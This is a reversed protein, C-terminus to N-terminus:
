KQEKYKTSLILTTAAKREGKKVLDFIKNEMEVLKINANDTQKAAESMFVEPATSIAKKIAFDLQPEFKRYREEWRVDGTAAAMHASMTLVEDLHTIIGRLKELKLAHVNIQKVDQYTHWFQWSIGVFFMVTFALCITLLKIPFNSTSITKVEKPTRFKKVGLFSKNMETNHM